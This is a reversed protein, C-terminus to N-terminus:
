PIGRWLKYAEQAIPNNFLLALIALGIAVKVRMDLNRLTEYIGPAGKLDGRLADYILGIKDETTLSHGEPIPLGSGGNAM